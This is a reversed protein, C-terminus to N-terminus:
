KLLLQGMCVPLTITPVKGPLHVLAYVMSIVPDTETADSVSRILDQVPSPFLAVMEETSYLLTLLKLVQANQPKSVALFASGNKDASQRCKDASALVQEHKGNDREYDMVHKDNGAPPTYGEGAWWFFHQDDNATCIFGNGNRSSKLVKRCTPCCAYDNIFVPQPIDDKREQPADENAWGGLKAIGHPDRKFGKWKRECEGAQYKESQKSWQEWLALGTTGLPTLAMGVAIWQNYDDCRWYALRELYRTAWESETTTGNTRPAPVPTPKDVPATQPTHVFGFHTLLIDLAVQQDTIEYREQWVEGTVAFYRKQDYVEIAPEKGNIPPADIVIKHKCREPLKGRVFVKVGNGSPSVESYSGLMALWPAAWAAATGDPNLCADFDIGVYPDDASFVYGIGSFRGASKLCADYSTWTTPDNSKAEGGDPQRPMKTQKGNRTEYRWCVWQDRESLENIAERM